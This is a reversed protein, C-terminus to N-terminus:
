GKGAAALAMDVAQRFFNEQLAGRIILDNVLFSPTGDFGLRKADEEDQALMKRVEEGKADELLKRLNLGADEAASRMFAQGESSLIKERNAFFAEFLKWSKAADQRHAALMLEAAEVAGPHNKMPMNKYVVRIKGDYARLLRKITQEGQQCYMCTFDTFVTITVPAKVAGLAPRKDLVVTKPQQIDQEWQARLMRQRRLDSGQQAVDLVFESNDRLIDLVLSPDDKLM